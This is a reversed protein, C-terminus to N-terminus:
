GSGLRRRPADEAQAQASAQAALTATSSQGAIRYAVIFSTYIEGMNTGQLQEHLTELDDQNVAVRPIGEITRNAEAGHVTFYAAWGLVGASDISVGYQQQESADLVGNRNADAGYLLTPTVGRVLLLEDVSRAPGNPCQYPTPLTEYYDSEAGFDRPEDDEDIWDLISEAIEVTMNPLSMLLSIAINEADPEEGSAADALLLTPQIAASNDELLPLTNINLRASEDQLGFRIGSFKGSQDLTPAIITYVPKGNVWCKRVTKPVPLM